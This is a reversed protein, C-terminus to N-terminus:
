NELAIQIVENVASKNKVGEANVPATLDDVDYVFYGSKSKFVRFDEDVAKPFKSTVERGEPLAGDEVPTVPIEGKDEKVVPAETKVKAVPAETKVKAVPEPSEVVVKEFKNVFLEVLKIPTSVVDGEKYIKGNLEFTSSQLRYKAM